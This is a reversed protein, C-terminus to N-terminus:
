LKIVIISFFAPNFIDIITKIKKGYFILQHYFYALRVLQLLYKIIINHLQPTKVIVLVPMCSWRVFLFVPTSQETNLLGLEVCSDESGDCCVAIYVACVKREAGKEGM